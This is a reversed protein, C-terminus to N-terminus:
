LERSAHRDKSPQDEPQDHSDHRLKQRGTTIRAAEDYMDELKRWRTPNAWFPEPSAAFVAFVEPRAKSANCPRRERKWETRSLWSSIHRWFALSM